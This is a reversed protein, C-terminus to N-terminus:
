SHIDFDIVQGLLHDLIYQPRLVGLQGAQGNDGQGLMEADVAAVEGADEAGAVVARQSSEDVVFLHGAGGGEEAVVGVYGDFLNGVTETEGGGFVEGPDEFGVEFDEGM